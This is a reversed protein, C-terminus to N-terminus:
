WSSRSSKRCAERNAKKSRDEFTQARFPKGDRMAPLVSNEWESRRAGTVLAKVATNKKNKM